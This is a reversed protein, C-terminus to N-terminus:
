TGLVLSFNLQSSTFNDLSLQSYLTKYILLASEEPPIAPFKRPLKKLM